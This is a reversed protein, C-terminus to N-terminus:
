SSRGTSSISSVRIGKMSVLPLQRIGESGDRGNTMCLVGFLAQGLDPDDRYAYSMYTPKLWSFDGSSGNDIVVTAFLPQFLALTEESNLWSILVASFVSEMLLPVSGKTDVNLVSVCDQRKEEGSTKVTLKYEGNKAQAEPRPFYALEVSIVASTEKLGFTNGGAEFTGDDFVIEFWVNKGSGGPTIQWPHFTGSIKYVSGDAADDTLSYDIKEPYTKEAAIVANLSDARIVTVTDWNNMNVPSSFLAANEQDDTQTLTYLPTNCVQMRIKEDIEPFSVIRPSEAAAKRLDQLNMEVKM